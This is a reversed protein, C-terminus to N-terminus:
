RVVLCGARFRKKHKTKNQSTHKVAEEVAHELGNLTINSILPSIVGGQPVGHIQTTPDKAGPELFGASLFQRLVVKNMPINELLWAHDIEDFFSKIDAELVWNKRRNTSMMKLM